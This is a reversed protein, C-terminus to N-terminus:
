CRHERCHEKFENLAESAAKKAAAMRREIFEVESHVAAGAAKSFESVVRSYIDLAKRFRSFLLNKEECAFINEPVPQLAAGQLVRIGFAFEVDYIHFDDLGRVSPTVAIVRGIRSSGEPVFGTTWIVRDGIRYM